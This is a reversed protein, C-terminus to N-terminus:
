LAIWIKRPTADKLDTVTYNNGKIKNIIYKAKVSNSARLIAKYKIINNNNREIFMTILSNKKSIPEQDAIVYRLLNHYQLKTRIKEVWPAWDKALELISINVLLLNKM